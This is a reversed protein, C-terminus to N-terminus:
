ISPNRKSILKIAINNKTTKLFRVIDIIKIDIANICYKMNCQFLKILLKKHTNFM